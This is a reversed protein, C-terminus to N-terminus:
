AALEEDEPRGFREPEVDRLQGANFRGYAELDLLGHGSYCFVITARRGQAKCANALDMVARIPHCAEPAPVLGHLRAFRSGAAFVETQPYAVANLLGEHRLLGILPACGHYRLGGAHIPPPVFDHGLTYTYVAPGSGSADAYDLRYEGRTLPPCAEPEVALFEVESGNLKDEVWPLVLGGMNSGCGVSAVLFDAERDILDLQARTELGIVTQHLLCHNAFAGVALRSGSDEYVSEISESVATAESGPHDPHEALLRRGFATSLGPSPLVSAGYTEMLHRRYPKQHYSARVMYVLLELDMLRCALAIASGWQGAGTDTVLRTHGDRKAYYAQALASNLKHSGTPATAEYKFYIEAPTDLFRELAHARMLPTPRWMAYADRVAEPISVWRELSAEQAVMAKTLLREMFQQSIPQGTAPDVYSEPMRPLDPLVNYWREPIAEIPLDIRELLRQTRM